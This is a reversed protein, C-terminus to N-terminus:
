IRFEDNKDCPRAGWLKGSFKPWQVSSLKVEGKVVMYMDEGIEGEQVVIDGQLGLYPRLTLALKTIITEELGAFLPCTQLQPKYMTLLLSKKLKPPLKEM